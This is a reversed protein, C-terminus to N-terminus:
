YKKLRRYKRHTETTEFSGNGRNLGKDHGYRILVMDISFVTVLPTRNFLQKSFNQLILLFVGTGSDGTDGAVKNFFSEAVHTKRNIQSIDLVGKKISCRQHNNRDIELLGRAKGEYYKSKLSLTQSNQPAVM